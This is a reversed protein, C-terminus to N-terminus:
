CSMHTKVSISAMKWTRWAKITTIKKPKKWDKCTTPEHGEPHSIRFDVLQVRCCTTQIHAPKRDTPGSNQKGPHWLSACHNHAFDLLPCHHNTDTLLCCCVTKMANSCPWRCYIHQNIILSKRSFIHFWPIQINLDKHGSYMWIRFVTTTARRTAPTM